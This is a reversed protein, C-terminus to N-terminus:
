KIEREKWYICGFNKGTRMTGSLGMGDIPVDDIPLSLLYHKFKEDNQCDGIDPREAEEAWFGCIGCLKKM